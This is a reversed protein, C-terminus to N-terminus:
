CERRVAFYISELALASGVNLAGGSSQYAHLEVYDGASLPFEFKINMVLVDTATGPLSVSWIRTGNRAIALKRMGTANAAFGAQGVFSYHGGQGTPVTVRSTNTVTSHMGGIDWQEVNLALATWTSDAVSVAGSNQGGFRPQADLQLAGGMILTAYPSAGSFMADIADQLDQLLANDLLTGDGVPSLATGSDDSTSVRTLTSAM